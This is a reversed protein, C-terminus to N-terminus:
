PTQKEIVFVAVKEFNIIKSGNRLYVGSEENNIQNSKIQNM